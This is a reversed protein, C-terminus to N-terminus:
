GGGRERAREGLGYGPIFRRFRADTTGVVKQRGALPQNSSLNRFSTDFKSAPAVMVLRNEKLSTRWTRPPASPASRSALSMSPRRSEARPTICLGRKGNGGNPVPEGRSATQRSLVRDFLDVSRQAVGGDLDIVDQGQLHGVGDADASQDRHRHIPGVEVGVVIGGDHQRQDGFVPTGGRQDPQGHFLFAQLRSPVLGTEHGLRARM